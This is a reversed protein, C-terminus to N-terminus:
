EQIITNKTNTDRGLTTVDTVINELLQIQEEFM